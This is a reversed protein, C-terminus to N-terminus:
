QNQEDDFINEIDRAAHLVRLIEVEDDLVRYFILHREFGQVFWMRIGTLRPNQFGREVGILPMQALREFSRAVADLFRNAAQEDTQAVYYSLNILDELVEDRRIINM